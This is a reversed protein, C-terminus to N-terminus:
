KHFRFNIVFIKKENSIFFAKFKDMSMEDHFLFKKNLIFKYNLICWSNTCLYSPPKPVIECYYDSRDRYLIADKSDIIEEEVNIDFGSSELYSKMLFINDDIQDRLDFVNIKGNSLIELGYLVLELLVCFIDVTETNEDMLINTLDSTLKKKNKNFIEKALIYISNNPNELGQSLDIYKERQKEIYENYELQKQYQSYPEM